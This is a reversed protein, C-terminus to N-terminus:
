DEIWRGDSRECSVLWVMASDKVYDVMFARTNEPGRYTGCTDYEVSVEPDDKAFLEEYISKADFQDMLTVYRGLMMAIENIDAAEQFRKLEDPGINM